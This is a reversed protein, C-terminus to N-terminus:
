ICSSRIVSYIDLSTLKDRDIDSLDNSIAYEEKFNKLGPLEAYSRLDAMYTNVDFKEGQLWNGVLDFNIEKKDEKGYLNKYEEENITSIKNRSGKKAPQYREDIYNEK